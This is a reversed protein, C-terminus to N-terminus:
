WGNGCRNQVFAISAIEQPCPGDVSPVDLLLGKRQRPLVAAAPRLAHGQGGYPRPTGALALLNSSGEFLAGGHSHLLARQVTPLHEQVQSHCM